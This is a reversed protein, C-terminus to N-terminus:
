RGRLRVVWYGGVGITVPNGAKAPFSSPSGDRPLTRTSPWSTESVESNDAAGESKLLKKVLM